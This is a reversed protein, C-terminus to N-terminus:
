GARRKKFWGDVSFDGGGIASMWLFTFCYLAALEGRNAWHWLEGTGGVHRWWYAVAMEGAIIFAVPSTYLGTVIM